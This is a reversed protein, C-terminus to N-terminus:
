VRGRMGQKKGFGTATRPFHLLPGIVLDARAISLDATNQEGSVKLDVGPRSPWWSRHCWAASWSGSFPPRDLLRSSHDLEYERDQIPPDERPLSDQPPWWCAWHGYWRWLNASVQSGSIGGRFSNRLLWGIARLQWALPEIAKALDVCLIRLVNGDLYRKKCSWTESLGPVLSVLCCSHYSNPVTKVHSHPNTTTTRYNAIQWEGKLLFANDHNLMSKGWSSVHEKEKRKEKKDEKPARGTVRYLQLLAQLHHSDHM